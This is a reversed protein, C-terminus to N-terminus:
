LLNCMLTYPPFAAGAFAPAASRLKDFPRRKAATASYAALSPLFGM